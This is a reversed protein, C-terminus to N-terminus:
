RYTGVNTNNRAIATYSSPTRSPLLAGGRGVKRGRELIQFMGHAAQAAASATMVARQV